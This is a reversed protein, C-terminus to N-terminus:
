ATRKEAAPVLMEFFSADRGEDIQEAFISATISPRHVKMAVHQRDYIVVGGDIFEFRIEKHTAEAAFCRHEFFTDTFM